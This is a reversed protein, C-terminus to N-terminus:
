LIDLSGWGMIKSAEELEYPLGMFYTRMLLVNYPLIAGPLIIAWITDIMGLNRIQVFNPILGGAFIM